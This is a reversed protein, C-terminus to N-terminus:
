RSFTNIFRFVSITLALLTAATILLYLMPWGITDDIFAYLRERLTLSETAPPPPRQGQSAVAPQQPARATQYVAGPSAHHNGYNHSFINEVVFDGVGFVSFHRVGSEDQWPETIALLQEAQGEDLSLKLLHKVLGLSGGQNGRQDQAPEGGAGNIFLRLADEVTISTTNSYTGEYDGTPSSEHYLIGNRKQDLRDASQWGSWEEVPSGPRSSYPELETHPPRTDTPRPARLLRREIYDPIIREAYPTNQKEPVSDIYQNQVPLADLTIALASGLLCSQAIVGFYLGARAISLTNKKKSTM